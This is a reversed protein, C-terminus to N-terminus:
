NDTQQSSGNQQPGLGQTHCGLQRAQRAKETVM